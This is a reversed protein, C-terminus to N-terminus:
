GQWLTRIAALVGGSPLGDDGTGPRDWGRERLEAAVRAREDDDLGGGDAVLVVIDVRVAPANPRPVITGFNTQLNTTRSAVDAVASLRGPGQLRMTGVPDQLQGGALRRAATEFAPDFDNSAFDSADLLDAAQASAAPLGFASDIEPAGPRVRFGVDPSGAVCNWDLTGCASSLEDDQGEWSLIVVESSALAGAEVEFLPERNQRAREAIVLEAWAAPVVWTRADLEDLDAAAVLRDALAGAVEGTNDLSGCAEVLEAVCVVAGGASGSGDGDTTEDDAGITGRVVLAAVVMAMAGLLAGVRKM